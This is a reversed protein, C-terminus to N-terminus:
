APAPLVPAGPAQELVRSAAPLSSIVGVLSHAHTHKIDGTVKVNAGYGMARSASKFTELVLQDSPNSDLKERLRQMSQLVLGKFSEEVAARLIPDVIENKRDELYAQFSDSGLVQSIWGVSYGFHQALENQSICPNALIREAMAEHTYRVKQIGGQQQGNSDTFM